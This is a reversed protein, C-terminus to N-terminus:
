HFCVRAYDFMFSSKGTHCKRIHDNLDPRITFKRNCGEETCQFPKVGRHFRLHQWLHSSQTYTKGCVDCLFQRFKGSTNTTPSKSLHKPQKQSREVSKRVINKIKKTHKEMRHELLAEISDLCQGCTECSVLLVNTSQVELRPFFHLVKYRHEYLLEFNLFKEECVNCVFYRQLGIKVNTIDNFAACELKFHLVLDKPTACRIECSHCEYSHGNIPNHHVEHAIL